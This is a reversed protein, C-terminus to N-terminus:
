MVGWDLYLIWRDGEQCLYIQMYGKDTCYYRKVRISAESPNWWPAKAWYGIGMNCDFPGPAKEIQKRLAEQSSAPIEIKALYSPDIPPKYYMNLVRSGAPLLLDTEREVFELNGYTFLGLGENLECGLFSCQIWRVTIIAVSSIAALFSLLIVKNAPILRM